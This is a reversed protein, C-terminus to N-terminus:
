NWALPLHQHEFWPNSLFLFCTYTIVHISGMGLLFLVKKCAGISQLPDVGYDQCLMQWNEKKSDDNGYHAKFKSEVERHRLNRKQPRERLDLQQLNSLLPSFGRDKIIHQPELATAGENMDDGVPISAGFCQSWAREFKKSKSQRQWGRTEALRLFETHLSADANFDFDYQLFFKTKTSASAFAMPPFNSWSLRGLLSHSSRDKLCGAVPPVVHEHLLGCSYYGVCSTWLSLLLRPCQDLCRGAYSEAKARPNGCGSLLNTLSLWNFRASRVMVARSITCILWRNRPINTTAGRESGFRQYSAWM